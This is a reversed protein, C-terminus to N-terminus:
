WKDPRQSPHCALPAAKWRVSRRGHCSPDLAQHNSMAGRLSLCKYVLLPRSLNSINPKRFIQSTQYGSIAQYLSIFPTKLAAPGIANVQGALLYRSRHHPQQTHRTRYVSREPTQFVLPSYAIMLKYSHVIYRRTTSRQHCDLHDVKLQLARLHPRHARLMPSSLISSNISATHTSAVGGLDKREKWTRTTDHYAQPLRAKPGFCRSENDLDVSCGDFV